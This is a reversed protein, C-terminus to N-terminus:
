GMRTAPASLPVFIHWSQSSLIFCTRTNIAELITPNRGFSSSVSKSVIVSLVILSCAQMTAQQEPSEKLAFGAAEIALRYRLAPQCMEDWKHRDKKSHHFHECVLMAPAVSYIDALLKRLRKNEAQLDLLDKSM